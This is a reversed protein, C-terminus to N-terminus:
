LGLHSGYVARRFIELMQFEKNGLRITNDGCSLDFTTCDLTINGIYLQKAVFTGSRRTLARVRVIFERPAFPKPPYNDAGANLGQIRDRVESKATLLLVPTTVGKERMTPLVTMGDMLPMM